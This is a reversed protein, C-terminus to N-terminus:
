VQKEGGQAGLPSHMGFSVMIADAAGCDCCTHIGSAGTNSVFQAFIVRTNSMVFTGNTLLYM